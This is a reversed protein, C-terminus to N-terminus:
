PPSSPRKALRDLSAKAEQTLRAEPTGKALSALVQRAEPTGSHELAEIARLARLWETDSVLGDMKALLGEARQRFELTPKGELAKLLAAQALERLKELEQTAQARVAFRDSDLEALLRAVHQPNAPAVPRLHERLFPVAREPVAGLKWLAARALAADPSALDDWLAHIDKDQLAPKVQATQALAPATDWVLTTTDAQGAALRTGNPSFALGNVRAHHGSYRRVESGTATSFVRVAESDAAALLRGDSTFAPTFAYGKGLPLHWCEKGSAVEWLHLTGPDTEGGQNVRNGEYSVAGLLKGDPSFVVDRLIDLRATTM